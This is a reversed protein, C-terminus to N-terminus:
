SAQYQAITSNIRKDIQEVITDLSHQEFSLALNALFGFFSETFYEEEIKIDNHLHISNDKEGLAYIRRRLRHTGMVNCLLSYSQDYDACNRYIYIKFETYLAFLRHEQLFLNKIDIMYNKLLTIGKVNSNETFLTQPYRSNLELRIKQLIWEAVNIVCDTKSPFYRDITKRSLECKKAIMEKTVQDIGLELFLRYSTDLAYDLNKSNQNSM